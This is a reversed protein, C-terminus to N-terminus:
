QNNEKRTLQEFAEVARGESTGLDLHDEINTMRADLRRLEAVPWIIPELWQWASKFM